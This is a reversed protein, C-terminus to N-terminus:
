TASVASRRRHAARIDGDWRGAVFTAIFTALVITTFTFHLWALNFVRALIGPAGNKGTEASPGPRSAHM